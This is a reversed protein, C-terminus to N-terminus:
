RELVEFSDAFLVDMQKIIAGEYRVNKSHVVVRVPIGPDHRIQETAPIADADVLVRCRGSGDSLLISAYVPSNEMKLNVNLMLVANGTLQLHGRTSKIQSTQTPIPVQNLLLGVGLPALFAAWALLAGPRIKPPEPRKPLAAEILALDFDLQPTRLTRGNRFHLWLSKDVNPTVGILDQATARALFAATRRKALFVMVGGIAFAIAGCLIPLDVPARAGVDWLSLALVAVAALGCLVVRKAHGGVTRGAVEMLAERVSDSTPPTTADIKPEM